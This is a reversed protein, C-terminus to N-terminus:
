KLEGRIILLFDIRPVHSNLAPQLVEDIETDDVLIVGIM